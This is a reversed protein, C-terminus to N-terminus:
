KNHVNEQDAKKQLNEILSDQLTKRTKEKHMRGDLASLM